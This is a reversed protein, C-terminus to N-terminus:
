NENKAVSELYAAANIAVMVTLGNCGKGTLYARIQKHTQGKDVLDKISKALEPNEGQVIEWSSRDVLQALESV